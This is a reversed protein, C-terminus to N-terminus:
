FGGCGGFGGGDGLISGLLLGGLAVGLLGTGFGGGLGSRPPPPPAYGGYPYYPAQQNTPYPQAAGYVPPYAVVPPTYPSPKILEGLKISLNLTGRARGSRRVVPVTTINSESSSSEVQQDIEEKVGRLASLPISSSGVFNSGLSGHNYLDIHVLANRDQVLREDASLKLTANWTPNLNGRTDVPTAVKMNPYIWVVGYVTMKGFTNVKKLNQASILTVEIERYEM